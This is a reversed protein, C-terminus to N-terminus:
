YVAIILVLAKLFCPALFEPAVLLYWSISHPGFRRVLIACSGEGVVGDGHSLLCFREVWVWWWCGRGWKGNRRWECLFSSVERTRPRTGM